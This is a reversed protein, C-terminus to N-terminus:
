DLGGGFNTSQGRGESERRRVDEANVVFWGGGKYALGHESAELQGEPVDMPRVM